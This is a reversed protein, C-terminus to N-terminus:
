PGSEVLEVRADTLSKAMAVLANPGQATWSKDRLCVGQLPALSLVRPYSPGYNFVDVLPQLSSHLRAGASQKIAQATPMRFAVLGNSIEWEQPSQTLRVPNVSHEVLGDKISEGPHWHWNKCSLPPLDTCFAIKNGHELLQFEVPKGNDDDVYGVGSTAAHTLNFEVLQAPHDVGFWEQLNFTQGPPAAPASQCGVSLICFFIIWLPLVRQINKVCDFMPTNSQCHCSQFM